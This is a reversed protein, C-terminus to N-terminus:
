VTLPELRQQNMGVAQQFNGSFLRTVDREIEARTVRRGDALLREYSESLSEAIVRRAHAWKYILQELM